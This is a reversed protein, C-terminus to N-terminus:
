EIAVPTYASVEILQTTGPNRPVSVRFGSVDLFVPEESSDFDTRRVLLTTGKRLASVIPGAKKPVDFAIPVGEALFDRYQHSERYVEHVIQVEELAEAKPSWLFLADHGRLLLHWLLEQYMERSLARVNPDPRKPPEVPQWHVFTIIPIAAPTAKGANTGALLMNYFFRYDSSEFDYWDYGRYWPYVVPMAFTFGTEEFEPYWKRYRARQDLVVPAGEVHEEFYDLWYRYGDHPHVGYNGVLARPFADLVPRTLMEKQIAARKGRIAAQFSGFGEIGEIERRCRACRKSSEWAGNSDLPGDVEWDAFLFDIPVSAERYRAVASRIRGVIVPTRHDIAFPCGMKRSTPFSEDFFPRGDSDVHATRSDGDFFGYTLATADISVPLRLEKQLKGLPLAVDGETWTAIAVMGRADLDRLLTRLESDDTTGLSRAPWVYLPLREGRVSELPGTTRVIERILELDTQFLLLSLLAIV